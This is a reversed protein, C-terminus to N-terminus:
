PTSSSSPPQCRYHTVVGEPQHVAIVSNGIRKHCGPCLTSDTVKVRQEQVLVSARMLQDLRAHNVERRLKTSVKQAAQNKSANSLYRQVDAVPLLPPLINMVTAPSFHQSQRALLELAPGYLPETGKQEPQLLLRLLTDFLGVM